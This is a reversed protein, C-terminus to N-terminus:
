KKEYKKKLKEVAEEGTADIVAQAREPLGRPFLQAMFDDEENSWPTWGDIDIYHTTSTKHLPDYIRVGKHLDYEYTLINGDFHDFEESTIGMGRLLEKHEEPIKM